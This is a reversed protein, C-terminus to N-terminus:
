RGIALDKAKRSPQAQELLADFSTGYVTLVKHPRPREFQAASYIRIRLQVGKIATARTM